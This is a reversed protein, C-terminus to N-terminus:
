ASPSGVLGSSPVPSDHVPNWCEDPQQRYGRVRAPKGGPSWDGLGGTDDQYRAFDEPSVLFVNGNRYRLPVLQGAPIM